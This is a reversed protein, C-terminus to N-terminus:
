ITKAMKDLLKVTNEDAFIWSGWTNGVARLVQEANRGASSPKADIGRSKLWGIIADQQSLPTVFGRDRHYRQLLIIGERSIITPEGLRLRPFGPAKTNPLYTIALPTRQGYDNLRLVNVWRAPNDWHGYQEAFEPALAPFELTNDSELAITDINTTGASLKARRPQIGSTRRGNEWIPDYWLKLAWSGQPLEALSDRALQEAMERPISRAFEVTTCIMVGHPNR